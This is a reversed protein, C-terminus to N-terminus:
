STQAEVFASAGGRGDVMLVYPDPEGLEKLRRAFWRAVQMAAMIFALTAGAVWDWGLLGHLAVTALVCLVFASLGALKFLGRYLRRQAKNVARAYVTRGALVALVIAGALAAGGFAHATTPDM